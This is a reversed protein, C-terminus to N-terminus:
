VTLVPIIVAHTTKVGWAQKIIINNSTPYKRHSSHERYASTSTSPFPTVYAVCNLKTVGLRRNAPRTATSLLHVYKWQKMREGEDGGMGSWHVGVHHERQSDAM